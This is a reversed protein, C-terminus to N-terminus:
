KWLPNYRAQPNCANTIATNAIFNTEETSLGTVCEIVESNSLFPGNSFAMKHMNIDIPM